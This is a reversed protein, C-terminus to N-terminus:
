GRATVLTRLLQRNVDEIQMRQARCVARITKTDESELARAMQLAAAYPGSRKVTADYIRQSLPLKNLMTGLPGGLLTDLEAFLGCLYVERRLGEEAGADLLQDTLRARLVMAANVPRLDADDSAHPMQEALWRGLAGYGLMMLGHRLSEIGSRLGLAASNVYSLFRWALVPELSLLAEIREMSQDDDVAKAVRLIAQRDPAVGLHRYPQLVDEAPWGAIAWADRQDLLHDALMRSAVGEYIQGPEGPSRLGEQGKAAQLATLVTPAAMTLLRLFFCHQLPCGAWAELAGRWVLKLGRAHATQVRQAIDPESLWDGRVEIWYDAVPAHALMDSLLRRNQMSLLLQPTAMSSLEELTAVLHVADISGGQVAEVYLQVAALERMKNWLPRYGLTISGVVSQSM